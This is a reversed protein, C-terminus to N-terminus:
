WRSEARMEPATRSETGRPEVMSAHVGSEPEAWALTFQAVDQVVDLVAARLEDSDAPIGLLHLRNTVRAVLESFGPDDDGAVAGVRSDLASPLIDM